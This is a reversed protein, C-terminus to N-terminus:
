TCPCASARATAEHHLINLLLGLGRSTVGIKGVM